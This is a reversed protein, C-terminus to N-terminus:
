KKDGGEETPDEGMWRIQLHLDCEDELIKLQDNWTTWDGELCDSKENFRDIFRALRKTGYDFEDRLVILSLVLVTDLINQKARMIFNDEEQKSVSCPIHYAGRRELEKKLAEVDNDHSELFRICFDMGERRYMEEKRKGM